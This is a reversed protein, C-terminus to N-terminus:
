IKKGSIARLDFLSIMINSIDLLKCYNNIFKAIM